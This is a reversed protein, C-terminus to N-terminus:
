PESTDCCDEDEAPCSGDQMAARVAGCRRTGRRVISSTVPHATGRHLILPSGAGTGRTLVSGAPKASSTMGARQHLLRDGAYGRLVCPSPPM